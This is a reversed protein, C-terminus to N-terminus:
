KYLKVYFLQIEDCGGRQLRAITAKWALRRSQERFPSIM